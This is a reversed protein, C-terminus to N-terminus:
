LEKIMVVAESKKQGWELQVRKGHKFGQKKWFAIANGEYDDVVDIRIRQSHQNKFEKELFKYIQTGIGQRKLKGDIMLLSLYVCEGIKYDSLGVVEQTENDIILVTEFGVSRMEEVENCIFEESINSVGLHNELFTANSNYIKTIIGVDKVTAVEIDYKKFM